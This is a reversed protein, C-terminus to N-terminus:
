AGQHAGNVSDIMHKSEGYWGMFCFPISRAGPAAALGEVGFLWLGCIVFGDCEPNAQESTAGSSPCERRYVETGYNMAKDHFHYNADAFRALELKRDVRSFAASVGNFRKLMM